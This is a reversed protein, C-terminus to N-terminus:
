EEVAPKRTALHERLIMDFSAITEGENDALSHLGRQCLECLSNLENDELGFGSGTLRQLMGFIDAAHSLAYPVEEAAKKLDTAMQAPINLLVDGSGAMRAKARANNPFAASM